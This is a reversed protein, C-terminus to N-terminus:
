ARLPFRNRLRTRGLSAFRMMWHVDAEPTRRPLAALPSLRSPRFSNSVRKSNKRSPSVNTTVRISLNALDIVYNGAGIILAGGLVLM